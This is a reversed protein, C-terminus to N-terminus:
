ASGWRPNLMPNQCHPCAVYMRRSDAIATVFYHQCDSCRIRNPPWLEAAAVELARIALTAPCAYADTESEVRSTALVTRLRELLAPADPIERQFVVILPRDTFRGEPTLPQPVKVPEDTAMARLYDDGPAALISLYPM